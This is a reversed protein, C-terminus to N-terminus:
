VVSVTDDTITLEEIRYNKDLHPKKNSIVVKGLMAMTASGGAKQIAEIIELLRLDTLLGSTKAFTYSIDLVEGLLIKKKEKVKQLATEASLNVRLLRNEDQLVSPTPLRDIIVAYLKDGTFPLRRASVPLGPKNKILFGGTIQTGVSGLGTRHVIEATHAIKALEEKTKGLHLLTNLAFAIGLSAAGSIGFGFGLPLPSHINIVVPKQALKELVFTGTPFILASNNFSLSPHPDVRVRVTVKKDITCGVGTSGAKVPDNHPHSKFIFSLSAPATVRAEKM